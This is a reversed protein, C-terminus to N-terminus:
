SIYDRVWKFILGAYQTLLDFSMAYLRVKILLSSIQGGDEQGM